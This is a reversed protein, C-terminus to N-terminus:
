HRRQRRRARVAGAVQRPLEGAGGAHGLVSELERELAVDDQIRLEDHM